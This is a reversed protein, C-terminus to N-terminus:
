CPQTQEQGQRPHSSPGPTDRGQRELYPPGSHLGNNGVRTAERTNEGRMELRGLLRNETDDKPDSTQM